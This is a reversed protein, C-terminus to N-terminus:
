GPASLSPSNRIEAWGRKEDYVFRTVAPLMNQKKECNWARYQINEDIYLTIPTLM